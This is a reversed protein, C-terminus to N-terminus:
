KQKSFHCFWLISIRGDKTRAEESRAIDLSRGSKALVALDVVDFFLESCVRGAEQVIYDDCM